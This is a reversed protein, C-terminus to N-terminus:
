VKLSVVPDYKPTAAFENFLLVSALRLRPRGASV